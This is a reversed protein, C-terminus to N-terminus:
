RRLWIVMFVGGVLAVTAISPVATFGVAKWFETWAESDKPRNEPKTMDYSSPPSGSQPSAPLADYTVSLTTNSYVKNLGYNATYAEIASTANRRAQEATFINYVEIEIEVNLVYAGFTFPTSARVNLVSFGANQLATRIWNSHNIFNPSFLGGATTSGSLVVIRAGDLGALGDDNEFISFNM